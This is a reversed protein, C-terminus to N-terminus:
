GYAPFAGGFLQRWLNIAGEHDNNGGYTKYWASRATDIAGAVRKRAEARDTPTLYEDVFADEYWVYNQLLASANDFFKFVFWPTDGLNEAFMTWVLVEIHYSQLFDGHHSNWHKAMKIIRRFNPGCTSAKSDINASHQKPRSKIWTDTNSNPVNYHSVNGSSDVSRSVPVIDVNPWTKYYLTVAQGNKRAGTRYESLADRVSQLVQTPTKNEIHKGYHLAVMVDVDSANRLATFRPISGTAFTELIEFSNGLLAVISDKRTNATDRHDGALNISDYFANFAAEVTFAM